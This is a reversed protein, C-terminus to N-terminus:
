RSWQMRFNKELGTACAAILGSKCEAAGNFTYYEVERQLTRTKIYICGKHYLKTVTLIQKISLQKACM